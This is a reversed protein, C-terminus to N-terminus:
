RFTVKERLVTTRYIRDGQLRLTIEVARPLKDGDCGNKRDWDDAWTSGNSSYRINLEELRDTLEYETGGELPAVDKSLERKERRMLVQGKGDAKEQFFYGVEWLDTEKTDPRRWNTLTTLGLTDFRRRTGGVDAEEKKGYFFTKEQMQQNCYANAIDASMRAILTRALDTDDRVAEAQEVNRGATSFSAYVMTMVLALIAMALLAEILTFGQIQVLAVMNGDSKDNMRMRAKSPFTVGVRDARELIRAENM